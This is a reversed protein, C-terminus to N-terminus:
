SLTYPVRSSGRSIAASMFSREFQLFAQVFEVPGEFLGFVHHHPHVVLLLRKGGGREGAWAVGTFCGLEGLLGANASSEPYFQLM